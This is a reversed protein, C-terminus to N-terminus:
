KFFLQTSNIKFIDPERPDGQIILFILVSLARVKSIISVFFYSPMIYMYEVFICNKPPGVELWRFFIYIQIKPLIDTPVDSSVICTDCVNTDRTINLTDHEATTEV